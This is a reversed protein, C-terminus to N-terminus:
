KYIHYDSVLYKMLNEYTLIQAIEFCNQARLYQKM